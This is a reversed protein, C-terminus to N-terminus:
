ILPPKNVEFIEHCVPCTLWYICHKDDPHEIVQTESLQYMIVNKCKEHIAFKITDISGKQIQGLSQM